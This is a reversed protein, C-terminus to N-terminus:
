RVRNSPQHFRCRRACLTFAAVNVPLSHQAPVICAASSSDAPRAAPGPSIPGHRSRATAGSRARGSRKCIHVIWRRRSGAAGALHARYQCRLDTPRRLTREFLRPGFVAFFVFLALRSSGDRPARYGGATPRTRPGRTPQMDHMPQATTPLQQTPQTPISRLRLRACSSRPRLSRLRLRARAPDPDLPTPTSRRALDDDLTSRPRLLANLSPSLPRRSRDADLTARSRRLVDRANPTSRRALHSDLSSLSLLRAALSIPTSRRLVLTSRNSRLGIEHMLPARDPDLTSRARRSRPALESDLTAFDSDHTALGSDLTSRSRLRDLTLIQRGM